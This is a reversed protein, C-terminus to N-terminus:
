ASPAACSTFPRRLARDPPSCSLTVCTATLPMGRRRNTARMRRATILNGVRGLPCAGLIRDMAPAPPRDRLGATHPHRTMWRAIQSSPGITVSRVCFFRTVAPSVSRVVRFNKGDVITGVRMAGPGRSATKPAPSFPRLCMGTPQSRSISAGALSAPARDELCQGLAMSFPVGFKSPTHLGNELSRAHDRPCGAMGGQNARCGGFTRGRMISFVSKEAGGM